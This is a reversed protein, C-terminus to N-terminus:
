RGAFSNNDELPVGVSPKKKGQVKGEEEGATWIKRSLLLVLLNKHDPMMLM